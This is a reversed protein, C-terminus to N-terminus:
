TQYSTSDMPWPVSHLVSDLIEKSTLWYKTCMSEGTYKTHWKYSRVLFGLIVPASWSRFVVIQSQMARATGRFQPTKNWSWDILMERERHFLFYTWIDGCVFTCKSCTNSINTQELKVDIEVIQETMDRCHRTAVPLVITVKTTSGWQLIMGWVSSM